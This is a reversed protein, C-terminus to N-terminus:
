IYVNYKYLSYTNLLTNKIFITYLLIIIYTDESYMM